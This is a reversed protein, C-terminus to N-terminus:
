ESLAYKLATCWCLHRQFYKGPFLLLSPFFLGPSHLTNIALADAEYTCVASSTAGLSKWGAIIDVASKERMEYNPPLLSIEHANPALSQHLLSSFFPSFDLYIIGVQTEM